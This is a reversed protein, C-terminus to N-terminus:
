PADRVAADDTRHAVERRLAIRSAVIMLLECIMSVLRHSVSAAIIISKPVPGGITFMLVAERIGIGSPFPDALFGITWAFGFAAVSHAFSTGPQVSALLVAFAVGNLLLTSLTWGYSRLIAGQTPVLTEPFTKRTIRGVLGMAWVIWRRQLFLLPVLMLLAFLRTTTSLDHGLVALAAGITGGAVVEILAFVVFATSAQPLSVGAETALGVQALVQWIAGPIYRGIQSTYFAAALARTIRTTSFLGIWARALCILGAIIAVGAAVLAWPGRSRCGKRANGHIPSPSPSSPLM